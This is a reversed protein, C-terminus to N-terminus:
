LQNERILKMYFSLNVVEIHIDGIFRIMDELYDALFGDKIKAAKERMTKIKDEGIKCFDGPFGQMMHKIARALEIKAFSLIEKQNDNIEKARGALHYIIDGINELKKGILFYSLILSMNKIGSSRLVESNLMSLTTTKAVLHYLRDVETENLKIEEFDPKEFLNALSLDIILSIRYIVQMFDIKSKDLLVKIQISNNDEYNIETGTMHTLTKRIQKKVEKSLGKKSHLKINEIGLYYLSFLVQSINEPYEDVNLSFEVLQKETAPECSISLTGDNKELLCVEKKEKLKNKVVWEKPLSVSYTTGAILQIKRRNM